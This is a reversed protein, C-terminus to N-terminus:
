DVRELYYRPEPTRVAIWLHKGAPVDGVGGFSECRAVPETPRDVKIPILPGASRTPEPTPSAEAAPERGAPARGGPVYRVVVYVVGALLAVIVLLGAFSKAERM